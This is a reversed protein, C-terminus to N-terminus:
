TFSGTQFFLSVGWMWHWDWSEDARCQMRNGFPYQKKRCIGTSVIADWVNCLVVLPAPSSFACQTNRSCNTQHCTAAKEDTVFKAAFLFTESTQADKYAWQMWCQSDCVCWYFFSNTCLLIVSAMQEEFLGAKWSCSDQCGFWVCFVLPLYNRHGWHSWVSSWTEWGSFSPWINVHLIIAKWCFGADPQSFHGIIIGMSCAQQLVMQIDMSVQQWGQSSNISVKSCGGPFCSSSWNCTRIYTASGRSLRARLTQWCRSKWM